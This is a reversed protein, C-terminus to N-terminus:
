TDSSSNSAGHGDLWWSKASSKGRFSFAYTYLKWSSWLYSANRLMIGCFRVHIYLTGLMKRGRQSTEMECVLYCIIRIMQWLNDSWHLICKIKSLMWTTRDLFGLNVAAPIRQESWAVGEIRLLQCYSRRCAAIARYTYNKTKKADLYFEM